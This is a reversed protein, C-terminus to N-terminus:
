SGNVGLAWSLKVDHWQRHFVDGYKLCLIDERHAAFALGSMGISCEDLDLNLLPWEEGPTEVPMIPMMTGAEVNVLMMRGTGPDLLRTENRGVPRCVIGRPLRFDSLRRCIGHEMM